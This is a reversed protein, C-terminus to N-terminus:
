QLTMFKMIEALRLKKLRLWKPDGRYLSHIAGHGKRTMIALNDPDYNTVDEDIHHVEWGRPLKEIGFIELIVQNHMQLRKKGPPKVTIYGNKGICPGKYNHHAEGFKGRMANPGVTKSVSHHLSCLARSEEKSMHLDIVGWINHWHTELKEAIKQMTM